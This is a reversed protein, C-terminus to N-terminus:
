GNKMVEVARLMHDMHLDLWTHFVNYLQDRSLTNWDDVGGDGILADTAVEEFLRSPNDLTAQCTDYGTHYGEMWWRMASMREVDDEIVWPFHLECDPDLDDATIISPYGVMDPTRTKAKIQCTCPQQQERNSLEHHAQDYAMGGYPYNKLESLTPM